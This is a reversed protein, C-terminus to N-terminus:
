HHHGGEGHVHGHELEEETAERVELVKVDFHLVEGALPHNGDVTVNEGEIKTIRVHYIAGEEDDYQFEKGVVLEEGPEFDSKPVNEILSEDREGYGEAPKVVVSLTDGAKKGHLATELGEILMGIGHIYVLPEQGESSEILKGDPRKLTYHITAVKNNTITM